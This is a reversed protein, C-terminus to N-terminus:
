VDCGRQIFGGLAQPRPSCLDDALSHDVAWGVSVNCKGHRQEVLIDYAVVHFLRSALLYASPSQDPKKHQGVNGM